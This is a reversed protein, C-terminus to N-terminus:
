SRRLVKRLSLAELKNSPSSVPHLTVEFGAQIFECAAIGACGDPLLGHQLFENASEGRDYLLQDFMDTFPHEDADRADLPMLEMIMGGVEISRVGTTRFLRTVDNMDYPRYPTPTVLETRVAYVTGEPHIAGLRKPLAKWGFGREEFIVLPDGNILSSRLFQERDKGFTEPRRYCWLEPNDEQFFPHILVSIKGVRERVKSKFVNLRREGATLLNIVEPSNM